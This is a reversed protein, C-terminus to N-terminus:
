FDLPLVAGAHESFTVKHNSKTASMQRQKVGAQNKVSAANKDFFGPIDVFLRILRGWL